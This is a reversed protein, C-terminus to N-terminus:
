FKLGPTKPDARGLDSIMAPSRRQRAACRAPSWSIGTMTTSAPSRSASARALAPWAWCRQASARLAAAALGTGSGPGSSPKGIPRRSRPSPRAGSKQRPPTRRRVIFLPSPFQLKRGRAVGARAPWRPRKRAPRAIAAEHPLLSRSWQASPDFTPRLARRSAPRSTTMPLREAM